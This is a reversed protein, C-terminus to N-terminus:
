KNETQTFFTHGFLIGKNSRGWCSGRTYNARPRADGLDWGFSRFTRKRKLAMSYVFHTAVLLGAAPGPALMTRGHQTPPPICQAEKSAGPTARDLLAKPERVHTLCGRGFLWDPALAVQIPYAPVSQVCIYM